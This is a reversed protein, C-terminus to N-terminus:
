PGQTAMGKNCLGQTAVGKNWLGQTTMDENGWGVGGGQLVARQMRVPVGGRRSADDTLHSFMDIATPSSSGMGKEYLVVFNLGFFMAHWM